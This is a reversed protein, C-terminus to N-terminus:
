ALPEDEVKAFNEEAWLGWRSFDVWITGQFFPGIETPFGNVKWPVYALKRPLLTSSELISKM